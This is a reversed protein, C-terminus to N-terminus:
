PDTVFMATKSLDIEVTERPMFAQQYVYEDGDQYVGPAEQATPELTSEGNTSVSTACGMVATAAATALLISKM